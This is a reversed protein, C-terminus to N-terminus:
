APHLRSDLGDAPLGLQPLALLHGDLGQYQLTRTGLHRLVLGTCYVLTGPCLPLPGAADDAAPEGEVPRLWWVVFRIVFATLVCLVLLIALLVLLTALRCM